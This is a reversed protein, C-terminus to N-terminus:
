DRLKDQAKDLVAEVRAMERIDELVLEKTSRWPTCFGGQVARFEAQNLDMANPCFQLEWGAKHLEALISM